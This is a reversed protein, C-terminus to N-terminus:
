TRIMHEALRNSQLTYRTTKEHSIGNDTLFEQFEEKVYEGGGNTCLTKIHRGTQNEAWAKYKKFADLSAQGDKRELFYCMPYCSFHNIFTIIYRAGSLSVMRIPGCIDSHVLEMLKHLSSSDELPLRAQKGYMCAECVNNGKSLTMGEPIGEVMKSLLSMNMNSLHGM